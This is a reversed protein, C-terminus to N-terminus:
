RYLAHLGLLQDVTVFRYGRARLTNIEKPLAALTQERPGGGFHQLVIAGDHANGVVNSYIAAVGPLAWDRPDVDWMITVFGLSRALAVLRPSIAGYPPRWLCPTFGGTARKIATATDMLQTRQQAARLRTMVPHSWTHDGIMDGDALMRRELVGHPDLASIQRGIEFFTAPVHERELVQLFQATPPDSWPGDDFTLAIERLNSPGQYVISPGSATCGVLVPRHLRLLTPKGPYLEFCGADPGDSGGSRPPACAAARVTSITQWRLPRYGLDIAAPLFSAVFRTTGTWTITAAIVSSPGAHSGAVKMYLLRSRGSHRPRGLCLQGSVRGSAVQEILLCLARRGSTLRRVSFPQGLRVQWVLQQGQQALSASRIQFPVTVPAAASGNSAEASAGLLGALLLAL